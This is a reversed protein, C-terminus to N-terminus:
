KYVERISHVKAKGFGLAIERADIYLKNLDAALADDEGLMMLRALGFPIVSHALIDSCLVEDELNRIMLVKHETKKIRSDLVSIESLTTNLLTLARQRLDAVDNPISSDTKRLGCLDLAIEFIEQGTM